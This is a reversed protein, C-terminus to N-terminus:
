TVYKKNKRENKDNEFEDNDFKKFKCVIKNSFKFFKFNQM